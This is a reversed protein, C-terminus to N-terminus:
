GRSSDRGSRFPTSSPNPAPDEIPNLVSVPGTTQARRSGTDRATSEGQRRVADSGNNLGQRRALQEALVENRTWASDIAYLLLMVAVSSVLGIFTTDFALHLSGLVSSLASEDKMATPLDKVAQSVGVVTGIFGVVPFAWLGLRMPEMLHARGYGFHLELMEPTGLERYLNAPRSTLMAWMRNGLGSCGSRDSAGLRRLCRYDRRAGVWQLFGFLSLVLLATLMGVRFADGFLRDLFVSLWDLGLRAALEALVGDMDDVGFAQLDWLLAYLGGLLLALFLLARNARYGEPGSRASLSETM